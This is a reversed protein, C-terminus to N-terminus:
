GLKVWSNNLYIVLNQVGTDVPNWDTGDSVAMMGAMPYSPEVTLVPL